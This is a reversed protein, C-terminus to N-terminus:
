RAISARADLFRVMEDVLEPALDRGIDDPTIRAPDKQTICNLAHTVCELVRVRHPAGPSARLWRDWSEIESVAVNYDYSGGLVLLPRDLKRALGPAVTALEIWSAWLGPPQGLIPQGLHTGREVRKLASAAERLVRGESEAREPQGAAEFAWRLRESQQELVVSMTNFPPALMVGARVEPRATMLVPILEGGESHGVFFTRERDIDPRETVTRLAAEADGVYESTAFEVEILSYPVASPGSEACGSFSGCTRKDYRYVAYGRASLAEALRKYVPLAFGFGLGLQGLMIGDRSMPGSGHVIVVVPVREGERREPLTLVGELHWLGRDFAVLVEEKPLRPRADKPPEAPRPAAAASSSIPPPPAAVKAPPACAGLLLTALLPALRM